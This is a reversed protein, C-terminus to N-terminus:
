VVSKRDIGATTFKSTDDVQTTSSGKGKKPRAALEEETMPRKGMAVLNYIESSTFNGSRSAHNM